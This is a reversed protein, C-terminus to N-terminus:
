QKAKVCVEKGKAEVVSISAKDGRWLTQRKDHDMLAM